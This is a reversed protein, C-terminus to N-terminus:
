GIGLLTLGQNTSAMPVAGIDSGDSGAGRLAPNTPQFGRRVWAVLIVIIPANAFGLVPANFTTGAALAARISAATNFEWFNRWSSSFSGGPETGATSKVHTQICRFNILSGGYYAGNNNSIVDGVTFTDTGAHSAWTSSAVNNLFVSDFTPFNRTADKFVPDVHLDHVGPTSSYYASYGNGQNTYGPTTPDTLKVNFSDNFDANAPAVVDQPIGANTPAGLHGVDEVVYGTSAIGWAINNKLFLVTGPLNDSTEDYSLMFQNDVFVTNNNAHVTRRGAAGVLSSLNGSNATGANPVVVTNAITVLEQGIPPQGLSSYCDGNAGNNTYEFVEGSFTAALNANYATFHPNTINHDDIHYNGSEDGQTNVNSQATKRVVNNTFATWKTSNAPSAYGNGFYCGDYSSNTQGLDIQADFVCATMTVNFANNKVNFSGLSNKFTVRTWVNGSGNSAFDNITIINFQGCGDFTCDTLNCKITATGSLFSVEWCDLSATGLNKFTTWTASILGFNAFGGQKFVGNAGGAKSTILCPNAQTGNCILKTGYTNNAAPRFAYATTTPATTSSDFQFTSGANMTLGFTDTSATTNFVFDGRCTLTVGAALVLQAFGSTTRIAAPNGGSVWIGNGAGITVNVDVTVTHATIIVTDGAVPVVGGTWTATASWNGAAANTIAAM